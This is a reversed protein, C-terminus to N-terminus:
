GPESRTQEPLSLQLGTHLETMPIAIGFEPLDIRDAETLAAVVWDEGKQM